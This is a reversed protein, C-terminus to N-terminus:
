AQPTDEGRTLVLALMGGGFVALSLVALQWVRGGNGSLLLDLATSLLWLQLALMLAGLLAAALVLSRKGPPSSLVAPRVPLKLARPTRQIM